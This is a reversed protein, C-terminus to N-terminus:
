RWDNVALAHALGVPDSLLAVRGCLYQRGHTHALVAVAHHGYLTVAYEGPETPHPGDLVCLDPAGDSWDNERQMRRALREAEGHLYVYHWLEPHGCVALPCEPDDAAFVTM